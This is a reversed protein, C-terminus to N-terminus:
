LIFRSYSLVDFASWKSMFIVLDIMLEDYGSHILQTVRLFSTRFYASIVFWICTLIHSTTIHHHLLLNPSFSLLNPLALQVFYVVVFRLLSSLLYLTFCLCIIISHLLQVQVWLRSMRNAHKVDYECDSFLFSVASIFSLSLPMYHSSNIVCFTISLLLFFSLLPSISNSVLRFSTLDSIFHSLLFDCSILHIFVFRFHVSTIFPKTTHLLSSCFSFNVSFWRYYMCFDFVRVASCCKTASEASQFLDRFLFFQSCKFIDSRCSLDDYM